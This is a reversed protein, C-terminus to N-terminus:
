PLSPPPARTQSNRSDIEQHGILSPPPSRGLVTVGCFRCGASLDVTTRHRRSARVRFTAQKTQAPMRPSRIKPSQSSPDFDSYNIGDDLDNILIAVPACSRQTRIVLDTGESGTWIRPYILLASDEACVRLLDPGQQATLNFDSRSQFDEPCSGEPKIIIIELPHQRALRPPIWNQEGVTLTNPPQSASLAVTAPGFCSLFAVWFAFFVTVAFRASAPHEVSSVRLHRSGAINGTQIPRDGTGHTRAM